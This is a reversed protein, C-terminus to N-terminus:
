ALISGDGREITQDQQVANYSNEITKLSSQTSLCLLLSDVAQCTIIEAM